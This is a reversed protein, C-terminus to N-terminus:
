PRGHRRRGRPTSFSRSCPGSRRPGLLGVLDPEADAAIAALENATSMTSLPVPLVGSRMSGIFWAVFAPDDNLVLLVRAGPSVALEALLNQARWVDALVDRYSMSRGQCRIAVSDSRGGAINRDIMWEGANYLDM